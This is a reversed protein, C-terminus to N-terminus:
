FTAMFSLFNLGMSGKAGIKERALSSLSILGFAFKGFERSHDRYGLPITVYQESMDKETQSKNCWGLQSLRVSYEM